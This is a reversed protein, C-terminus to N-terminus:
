KVKSQDVLVIRVGQSQLLPAVHKSLLTWFDGATEPMSLTTRRAYSACHSVLGPRQDSATDTYIIMQKKLLSAM